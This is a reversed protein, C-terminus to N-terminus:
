PVDRPLRCPRRREPSRSSARDPRPASLRGSAKTLSGSRSARKSRSAFTRAESFWGLMACIWPSSCLPSVRASTSSSTSPGVRCSIMAPTGAARPVLAASSRAARPPPAGRATFCAGIGSSSASGIARWIASASSAACSCPIMWRSRLGALTLTRGSPVTLTSSKPRALASSGSRDSVSAALEGVIVIVAAAVFIPTMMPVAAYIDGSCARPLVTSLRASMQANPTTGYSISVPFCANVPSSMESVSDWTSWVSGSQLANGSFTGNLTSRYRRRQKCFSGLCRMRSMPSTRSASSPANSVPTWAVPADATGSADRDAPGLKANTAAPTASVAASIAPRATQLRVRGSGADGVRNTRM